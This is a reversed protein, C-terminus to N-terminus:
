ISTVFIYGVVGYHAGHAMEDKMSKQGFGFELTFNLDCMTKIM